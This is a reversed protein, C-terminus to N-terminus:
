RKDKLERILNIGELVVGALFIVIATIFVVALLIDIFMIM